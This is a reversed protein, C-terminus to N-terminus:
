SRAVQLSIDGLQLDFLLPLLLKDIRLIELNLLHLALDIPHATHAGFFLLCLKLFLDLGQGFVQLLCLLVQLQESSRVLLQLILAPVDVSNDGLHLSFLASKITDNTLELKLILHSATIELSDDLLLLLGEDLVIDHLELNLAKALLDISTCIFDVAKLVSFVLKLHGHFLTLFFDLNMFVDQDTLQFSCFLLAVLHFNLELLSVILDLVQADFVLAEDLAILGTATFNFSLTLVGLGVIDNLSGLLLLLKLSITVLKISLDFLAFFLNFSQKVGKVMEFNTVLVVTVLEHLANFSGVKFAFLNKLVLETRGGFSQEALPTIHALQLM